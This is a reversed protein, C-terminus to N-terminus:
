HKCLVWQTYSMTKIVKCMNVWKIMLIVRCHLYSWLEWKVYLSVLTYLPQFEQHPGCYTTSKDVMPIYVPGTGDCRSFSMAVCELIRAQFVGHVSSGPPSCDMPDCLTLCSQTVEGYGDCWYEMLIYGGPPCPTQRTAVTNDYDRSQLCETFLYRSPSFSSHM